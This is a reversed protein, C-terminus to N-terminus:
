EPISVAAVFPIEGHTIELRHMVIRSFVFPIRHAGGHILSVKCLYVLVPVALYKM